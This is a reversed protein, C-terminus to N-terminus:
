HWEHPPGVCALELRLEQAELGAEYNDIFATEAAVGLLMQGLQKERRARDNSVIASANVGVVGTLADSAAAIRRLKPKNLSLSIAVADAAEGAVVRRAARLYKLWDPHSEPSFIDEGLAILEDLM